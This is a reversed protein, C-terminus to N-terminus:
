NFLSEFNYTLYRVRSSRHYDSYQGDRVYFTFVGNSYEYRILWARELDEFPYFDDKLNGNSDYVYITMNYTCATGAADDDSIVIYEGDYHIQVSWTNTTIPTKVPTFAFNGDRDILSIYMERSVSNWLAVAAYGNVFGTHNILNTIGEFAANENKDEYYNDSYDDDGRGAEEFDSPEGPLINGTTLDYYTVVGDLEVAFYNGRIDSYSSAIDKLIYNMDADLINLFIYQSRYEIWEGDDCMYAYDVWRMVTIVTYKGNQIVDIYYDSISDLTVEGKEFSFNGKNNIVKTILDESAYYNWLENSDKSIENGSRLDITKFCGEHYIFLHDNGVTFWSGWSNSIQALEESPEIIWEGALNLIGISDYGEGYALVYKRDVLELKESDFDEPKLLTGDNVYIHGKYDDWYIKTESSNREVIENWFFNNASISNTTYLNYNCESMPLIWNFNYDLLGLELKASAYDSTLKKIAIYKGDHLGVFETGGFTDATYKTGNVDYCIGDYLLLGNEFSLYNVTSASENPNLDFSFVIKGNKDIVYAKYPEDTINIVARGNAFPSSFVIDEENVDATSGGDPTSGGGDPNSGGEDPTPTSGGGASSSTTGSPQTTTVEPATTRKSKNNKSGDDGGIVLVAVLIAVVILVITGIILAKKTKANM